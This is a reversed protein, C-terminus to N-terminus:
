YPDAFCVFWWVRRSSEFVFYAWWLTAQNTLASWKPDDMRFATINGNPRLLAELLIARTAEYAEREDSVVRDTCTGQLLAGVLSGEFEYRNLETCNRAASPNIPLLKPVAKALEESELLEPLMDAFSGTAPANGIASIFVSYFDAVARFREGIEDVTPCDNEVHSFIMM